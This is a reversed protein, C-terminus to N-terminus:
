VFHTIVMTILAAAIVFAALAALGDRRANNNENVPETPQSM